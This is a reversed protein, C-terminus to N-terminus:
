QDITIMSELMDMEYVMDDHNTGGGRKPEAAKPGQQHQPNQGSSPFLGILQLEFFCATTRLRVWGASHQPNSRSNAFNQRLPCIARKLANPYKGKGM